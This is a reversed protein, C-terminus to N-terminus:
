GVWGLGLLDVGRRRIRACGMRRCEVKVDLGVRSM